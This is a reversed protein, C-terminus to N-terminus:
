VALRARLSAIRRKFNEGERVGRIEHYVLTLSIWWSMAIASLLMAISMAEFIWLYNLISPLWSAEVVHTGLMPTAFVLRPLAIMGGLVTGMAFYLFNLLAVGSEERLIRQARRFIKREDEFLAILPAMCTRPFFWILPLGFFLLSIIWILSLDFLVRLLRGSRRWCWAFCEGVTTQEGSATKWAFVACPLPLTTFILLAMFPVIMSVIVYIAPGTFSWTRFTAVLLVSMAIVAALTPLILYALVDLHDHICWFGCDTQVLIRRLLSKKPRAM